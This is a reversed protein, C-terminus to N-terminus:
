VSAPRVQRALERARGASELCVEVAVLDAMWPARVATAQAAAYLYEHNWVLKFGRCPAHLSNCRDKIGHALFYCVNDNVRQLIRTDLMTVTDYAVRKIQDSAREFSAFDFPHRHSM